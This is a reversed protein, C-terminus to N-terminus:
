TGITHTDLTRSAATEHRGRVSSTAVDNPLEPDDSCEGGSTAKTARTKERLDQVLKKFHAVHKSTRELEWTAEHEPLGHWKVLYEKKRNFQRQKLLAEVIFLENGKDDLVHPIAKPIPRYNFRSPNPVHRKLRDVNFVNHLRRM